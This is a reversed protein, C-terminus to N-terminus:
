ALNDGRRYSDACEYPLTGCYRSEVVSVRPKSQSLRLRGLLLSNGCDALCFCSQTQTGVAAEIRARYRFYPRCGRCVVNRESLLTQSFGIHSAVSIKHFGTVHCAGDIVLISRLSVGRPRLCVIRSLLQLGRYILRPLVILTNL